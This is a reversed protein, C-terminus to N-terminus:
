HKINHLIEWTYMPTNFVISGHPNPKRGKITIASHTHQCLKKEENKNFKEFIEEFKNDHELIQVEHKDLKNNINNLSLYIDQNDM